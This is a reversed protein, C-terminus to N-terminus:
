YYSVLYQEVARAALAGCGAAYIAQKLSGKVVDGAAFLGECLTKTNDAIVYGETDLEAINKILDSVPSIGVAIFLGDLVIANEELTINNKIRISELKKNGLIEVIESNWVCRIKSNELLRRQM